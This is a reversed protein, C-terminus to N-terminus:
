APPGFHADARALMLRAREIQGRVLAEGARANGTELADMILRHESEQLVYDRETYLTLLLADYKYTTEWFDLIMQRIRASELGAYCALHFARDAEIWGAQDGRLAEMARARRDAEALQDPTLRGVSEALALPELRERIKFSEECEESDLWSVRAGSHPRSVVLGEAELLRLAERVPTRSVGLDRAVAEQRIPQGAKYRGAYIAERVFQAVDEARPVYTGAGSAARADVGNEM